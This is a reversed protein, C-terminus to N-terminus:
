QPNSFLTGLVITSSECLFLLSCLIRSASWKTKLFAHLPGEIFGEFWRNPTRWRGEPGGSVDLRKKVLCIHVYFLELYGLPQKWTRRFMHFRNKEMHKTFVIMNRRQYWKKAVENKIITEIHESVNLDSSNEAWTEILKHYEDNLILNLKFQSMSVIKRYDIMLDWDLKLQYWWYDLLLSSMHDKNKRSYLWCCYRIWCEVKM